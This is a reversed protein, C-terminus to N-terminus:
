PTLKLKLYYTKNGDFPTAVSIDTNETLVDVPDSGETFITYEVRCTLTLSSQPILYIYAKHGDLSIANKYDSNTLGAPQWNYPLGSVYRIGNDIIGWSTNSPINDTTITTSATVHDTWTPTDDTDTLDLKASSALTGTLTVSRVLVKTNAAPASNLKISVALRALAHRMSLNVSAPATFSQCNWLLDISDNPSTPRTYTIYPTEDNASIATIGTTAGVIDEPNTYPAYACFTVNTVTEGSNNTQKPWYKLPSYSWYGNDADDALYTYSVQQNYMFDPVLTEPAKKTTAFVGFGTYRLQEIYGPETTRTLYPAMREEDDTPISTCSFSIAVPEEPVTNIETENQSCAVTLLTAIIFGYRRERVFM